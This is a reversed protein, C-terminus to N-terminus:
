ADGALHGALAEYDDLDDFPLVLSRLRRNAPEGQGRALQELVGHLVAISDWAIRLEGKGGAYDLEVTTGRRRSLVDALSAINPSPPPTPALRNRLARVSRGTAIVDPTLDRVSKM